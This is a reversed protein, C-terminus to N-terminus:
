SSLLLYKPQKHLDTLRFSVSLSIYILLLAPLCECCDFSKKCGRAGVPTVAVSTPVPLAYLSPAAVTDNENGALECGAVDYVTAAELPCVAVPADDGIVIDPRGDFEFTVKVTVAVFEYPVDSDDAADDEIKTVVTGDAGTETDTVDGSEPVPWAYSWTEHVVGSLPPLAIM